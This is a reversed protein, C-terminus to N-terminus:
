HSVPQAIKLLTRGILDYWSGGSYFARGLAHGVVVSASSADVYMRESPTSYDVV